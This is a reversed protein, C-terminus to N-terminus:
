LFRLKKSYGKHVVTIASTNDAKSIYLLIQMPIGEHKTCYSLAATEAKATFSSTAGQRRVAWSIPWRRGTKKNLLELFMGSTSKTDEADGCWDADSWLDLQVDDLDDPALEAYLAALPGASDLYFPM